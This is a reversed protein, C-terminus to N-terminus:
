IFTKMTTIRVEFKEPAGLIINSYQPYVMWFDMWTWLWQKPKSLRGDNGGNDDNDYDDDGVGLYDGNSDL